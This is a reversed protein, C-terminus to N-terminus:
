THLWACSMHVYGLSPPMEDWEVAFGAEACCARHVEAELLYQHSYGHTADLCALIGRGPLAVPAPSTHAEVVLMGSRGVMARWRVLCAILDAEVLAASAIAGDTTVFRNASRGAGAVADASVRLARDHLVSKMMFLALGADVGNAALTWRLVAPAGVDGDIVRYPLGTAALRQELRGRAVPSPDVGVAVLNPILPALAQAVAVLMTGDGAGVDILYRFPREAAIRRAMDTIERACTTTYVDGSFQIDADRDLHTESDAQTDPTVAEGGALLAPVRDLLPAYCLVHRAQASLHVAIAGAEALSVRGDTVAALGHRLLLAAEVEALVIGAGAGRDAPKHTDRLRLLLPMVTFGSCHAVVRDGAADELGTTLPSAYRRWEAGGVRGAETLGVMAPNGPVLTIWGLQHLLRLGIGGYGPAAEGLAAPEPLDGQALLRDFLGIAGMGAITSALALGEIQLCTANWVTDAIAM